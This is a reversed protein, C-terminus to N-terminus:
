THFRHLYNTLRFGTLFHQIYCFLGNIWINLAHPCRSFHQFVVLVLLKVDFDSESLKEHVADEHEDDAVTNWVLVNKALIEVNVILYNVLTEWCTLRSRSKHLWFRTNLKHKDSSKRAMSLPHRGNLNNLVVTKLM